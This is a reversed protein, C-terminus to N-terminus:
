GVPKRLKVTGIEERGDPPLSCAAARREASVTTVWLACSRVTVSCLDGARLLPFRSEPKSCQIVDKEIRRPPSPHGRTEFYGLCVFFGCVCVIVLCDAAKGENCIAVVSCCVLICFYM